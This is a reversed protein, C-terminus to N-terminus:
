AKPVEEVIGAETLQSLFEQVDRKAESEPVDYEETLCRCIQDLTRSGDMKELICGGAGDLVYLRQLDALNGRLPVLITDGAIQRVVFNDKKRFTM